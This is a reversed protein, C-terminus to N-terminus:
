RLRSQIDEGFLDSVTGQVSVNDPTCLFIDGGIKQIEGGIAYVTGSLFDVVRHAEDIQLRHLNVVVARRKKLHDAIEQSEDFAAPEEVIVKTNHHVSQLHVVNQSVHEDTHELQQDATWDNEHEDALEEQHKRNLQDDSSLGLFQLLNRIAM